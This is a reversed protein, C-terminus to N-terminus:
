LKEINFILQVKEKLDNTEMYSYDLIIQEKGNRCVLDLPIELGRKKIMQEFEWIVAMIPELTTKIEFPAVGDTIGNTTIKYKM